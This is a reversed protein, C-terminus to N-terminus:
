PCPVPGPPPLLLTATVHLLLCQHYELRGPPLKLLARVAEAPLLMHQYDFAMFPLDYVRVARTGVMQHSLRGFSPHAAWVPAEMRMM